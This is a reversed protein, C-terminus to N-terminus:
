SAPCAAGVLGAHQPTEHLRAEEGLAPELEQHSRARAGDVGCEQCRVCGLEGRADSAQLIQPARDFGLLDEARIQAGQAPDTHAPYTVEGEAPHQPAGARLREQVGCGEPLEQGGGDREAPDVVVDLAPLETCERDRRGVEVGRVADDEQVCLRVNRQPLASAPSHLPGPDTHLVQHRRARDELAIGIKKGDISISPRWKPSPLM